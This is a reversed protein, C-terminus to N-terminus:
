LLILRANALAKKRDALGNTGGNIRVTLGDIDDHDAFGNCGRQEWFICAAQMGFDPEALREPTALVDVGTADRVASYNSRGTTQKAGRGRFKWGDGAASNGLNALGWAGGYVLNAIKEQAAASLPPAGNKRGLRQCDADSIRTRSFTNRLGSSSYNLSEVLKKFGGTEVSQQALAHAMRLPTTIDAEGFHKAAAKGLDTRLDTLTGGGIFSMLAAISKGGFDGDVKVAYGKDVLRQQAREANQM